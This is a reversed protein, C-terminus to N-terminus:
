RPPTWRRNILLNFARDCQWSESWSADVFHKRPTGIPETIFRLEKRCAEQKEHGLGRVIPSFKFGTEFEFIEHEIRLVEHHDYHRGLPKRCAEHQDHPSRIVEHQDQPCSAVVFVTRLDRFKTCADHHCRSGTCKLSPHSSSAQVFCLRCSTLM